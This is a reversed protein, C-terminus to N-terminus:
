QHSGEGGNTIAKLLENSYDETARQEVSSFGYVDNPRKALYGYLLTDRRLWQAESYLQWPQLTTAILIISFAYIPALSRALTGYYLGHLRRRAGVRWMALATLAVMIPVMWTQVTLPTDGRVRRAIDEARSSIVRPIARSVSRSTSPFMPRAYGSGRFAVPLQSGSAPWM